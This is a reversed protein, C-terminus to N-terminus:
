LIRVLATSGSLLMWVLFLRGFEIDGNMKMILSLILLIITFFTSSCLAEIVKEKVSVLNEDIIGRSSQCRKEWNEYWRMALGGGIGSLVYTVMIGIMAKQAQWELAFVLVSLGLLCLASVVAMAIIGVIINRIKRM